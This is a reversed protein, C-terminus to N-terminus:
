RRARGSDASRDHRRRFKRVCPTAATRSRAPWWVDVTSPSGSACGSCDMGSHDSRGGTTGDDIVALRLVEDEATLTIWCRTASAHRRVNTLAEQLIRYTSMQVGAPVVALDVRDVTVAIGTAGTQAVLREIGAMTPPGDDDESTGPERLGTLVSRVDDLASRSVQEITRLAADQKTGLHTAVAAKMAILSLAHGVVDHVDRAIRLREEALVRATHLDASRDLSQHRAPDRVRPWM